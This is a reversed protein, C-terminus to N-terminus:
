LEVRLRLEFRAGGEDRNAYSVSGRHASVIRQVISLGLGTGGEKMTFFPKFLDEDPELHIGPGDDIVEFVIEDSDRYTRLAVDGGESVADVANHVINALAQAAKELDATIPPLDPEVGYALTVRKEEAQRACLRYARKAIDQPRRPGLKLEFPRAFGLFQAVAKELHAAEKLILEATALREDDSDFSRILLETMGTIVNLPNRLEHVVGATLEGIQALQRNLEAVRELNRMETMDIFLFIAGNFPEPGHLLSASLGIVKKVGGQQPLVIEHRSVPEHITMVRRVIDTFPGVGSLADLRNGPRLYEEGIGLHECAAPNSTVIVGDKDLAIVGSTLSAIIQEHYDPIPNATM